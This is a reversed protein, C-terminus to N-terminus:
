IVIIPSSRPHLWLRVSYPSFCLTFPSATNHFVRHFTMIVGCVIIEVTVHNNICDYIIAIFFCLSNLNWKAASRKNAINFTVASYCQEIKAAICSNQKDWCWNSDVSVPMIHIRFYWIHRKFWAHIDLIKYYIIALINSKTWTDKIITRAQWTNELERKPFPM